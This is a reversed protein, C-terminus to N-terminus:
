KKNLKLGCWMCYNVEKEFDNYYDFDYWHYEDDDYERITHQILHGEPQEDCKHIQFKSKTIYKMLIEGYGSVQWL